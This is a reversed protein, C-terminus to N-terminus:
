KQKWLAHLEIFSLASYEVDKGMKMV